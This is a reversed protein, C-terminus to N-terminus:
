QQVNSFRLIFILYFYFLFSTQNTLLCFFIIYIQLLFTFVIQMRCTILTLLERNSMSHTHLSIAPLYQVTYVKCVCYTFYSFHDKNMNAKEWKKKKNAKETYHAYTCIFFNYVSLQKQVKCTVMWKPKSAHNKYFIVLFFILKM